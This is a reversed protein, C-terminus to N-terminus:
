QSKKWIGHNTGVYLNKGLGVLNSIEYKAPLGNDAFVWGKLNNTSRYVGSPTTIFVASGHLTLSLIKEDKPLSIDAPSWNAGSNISYFIGHTTLAYLMKGSLIISYITDVVELGKIKSWSTGQNVLRFWGKEQIKTILLSDCAVTSSAVIYGNWTQIIGSEIFSWSRGQNTSRLFKGDKIRILYEKFLFLSEKDVSNNWSYGEDQDLKIWTNGDNSRLLSRNSTLVYITNNLMHISKVGDNSAIPINASAWSLGNDFSKFVGKDTVLFLNVGDASLSKALFDKPLGNDSSIWNVGNNTSSFIGNSTLAFLHNNTSVLMKVLSTKPLGSNYVEWSTGIANEDNQLKYIGHNTLAFVNTDSSILKKIEVDNPLGVDLVIWQPNRFAFIGKGKSALINRGSILLSSIIKGEYRNRKNKPMLNYSCDYWNVGKDLSFYIHEDTAVFLSNDNESKINVFEGNPLGDKSKYWSAGKDDSSLIINDRFSQEIKTYLLKGFSIFKDSCKFEENLVELKTKNWGTENTFRYLIKPDYYSDTNGKLSAFVTSNAISITDILYKDNYIGKNIEVWTSDNNKSSVLGFDNSSAIIDSGFVVMDKINVDVLGIKKWDKGNNLSRFVGSYTALFITQGTVSIKNISTESKFLAIASKFNDRSLYLTGNMAFYINSESSTIDSIRENFKFIPKWYTGDFMMFDIGNMSTWLKNNVVYVPNYITPINIVNKSTLINNALVHVFRNTVSEKFTWTKGGNYSIYLSNLQSTNSESIVTYICKDTIAISVVNYGGPLGANSAEWTDGNDLSRYLGKETGAFVLSGKASISYTKGGYLGKIKSWQASIKIPQILFIIFFTISLYIKKM